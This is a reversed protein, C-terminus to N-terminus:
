APSSSTLTVARYSNARSLRSTISLYNRRDLAEKGEGFSPNAIEDAHHLQVGRREEPVAKLDLAVEGDDLLSGGDRDCWRVQVPM